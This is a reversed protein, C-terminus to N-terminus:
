ISREYRARELLAVYVVLRGIVLMWVLLAFVSGIAGYLASAREVLRPVVFAGVVKLVEFAVGGAVAAPLMARLPIRRSPLVRATWVFLATDVLVGGVAGLVVLPGDLAFLAGAAIALSVLVGGGLLWLLGVVRGRLSGGPIDWVQNWADTIASALGTGTWLLGVVGVISSAIRRKHATEVAKTITRASDGGLGLADVVSKAFDRADGVAFGVVAIALVLLPFLALFGRMSIAAALNSGRKADFRRQIAVLAQLRPHGDLTV